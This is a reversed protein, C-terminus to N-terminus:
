LDGEKGKGTRSNRANMRKSLDEKESPQLTASWSTAKALRASAEEMRGLSASVAGAHYYLRADKTGVRLAREMLADAEGKEGAALLTWALADLTFVDSRVQLERRALGVATRVDEGRTALYLALTRPDDVPGRRKLDDEVARAEDQRGAARLADAEAWFYEPLPNGAAARELVSAAQRAKGEALLLRGQVLLAPPYDHQLDLAMETLRRALSSNGAQLEYLALRVHAWAASEGDRPDTARAARGMLDIAGELDGRLWRVHAARSYAQPGPKADMMSQYADIAEDLKGQEMLADGLLGYDYALGRGAVLARAVKEAEGFRHLSDLVHGRLLLAEPSAPKRTEICAAAQEALRYYGPDFSKRAKSVYEWGLRELAPTPDSSTRAQQKFRAIERDAAEDGEQPALAVLCPDVASRAPEAKRGGCAGAVLVMSVMATGRFMNSGCRGHRV